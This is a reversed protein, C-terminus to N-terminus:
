LSDWLSVEFHKGFHACVLMSGLFHESIAGFDGRLFGAKM